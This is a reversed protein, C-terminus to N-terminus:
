FKENKRPYYNEHFIKFIRWNETVFSFNINGVYM